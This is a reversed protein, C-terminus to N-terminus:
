RAAERYRRLKEIPDIKYRVKRGAKSSRGLHYQSCYECHYAHLPDALGGRRPTLVKRHLHKKARDAVARTPYGVKGACAAFDRSNEQRSM